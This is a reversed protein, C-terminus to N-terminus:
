ISGTPWRQSIGGRRPLPQPITANIKAENDGSQIDYYIDANCREQELAWFMKHYFDMPNLGIYQSIHDSDHYQLNSLRECQAIEDLLNRGNIYIDVKEDLPSKPAFHSDDIRFEIIDM